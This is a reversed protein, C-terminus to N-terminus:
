PSRRFPDEATFFSKAAFAGYQDMHSQFPPLTRYSVVQSTNDSYSLTLRPRGNATARLPVMSWGPATAAGISGVSLAVDDSSASLLQAGSPPRVLLHATTMDSGLVYGPVGLVEAIGARQLAAGKSRVDDALAFSIAVEATDGPSGAAALTRSTPSLWPKGGEAWEAQAYAKSHTLWVASGAIGGRSGTAEMMWAELSTRESKPGAAPTLMLVERQGTLRTLTAFGHQGNIAPDLFTSAADGAPSGAAWPFPLRFGFGGLELAESALNSLVFRLTLSDGDVGREWRRILSFPPPGDAMPPAAPEGVLSATLNAVAFAAGTANLPETGHAATTWGTWLPYSRMTKFSPPVPRTKPRWSAPRMRIVADGPAVLQDGRTFAFGDDRSPDSLCLLSLTQSPSLAVVFPGVTVNQEARVRLSVFLFSLLRLAMLPASNSFM